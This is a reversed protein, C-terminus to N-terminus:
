TASVTSGVCWPQLCFSWSFELQSLTILEPSSLYTFEIVLSLNVCRPVLPPCVRHWFGAWDVWRKHCFEQNTIFLPRCYMGRLRLLVHVILCSSSIELVGVYWWAWRSLHQHASLGSSPWRDISHEPSIDSSYIRGDFWHVAGGGVHDHWCSWKCGLPMTPKRITQRIMQKWKYYMCRASISRHWHGDTQSPLANPRPAHRSCLPQALWRLQLWLDGVFM